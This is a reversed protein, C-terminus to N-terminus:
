EKILGLYKVIKNRLRNRFFTSLPYYVIGFVVFTFGLILLFKDDKAISLAMFAILVGGVFALTAFIPLIANPKATLKILTGTEKQKLNGKIYASKRRLNPMNWGIVNFKDYVTFENKSTLKGSIRLTKHELLGEIRNKVHEINLNSSYSTEETNLIKQIM